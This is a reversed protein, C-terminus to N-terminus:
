NIESHQHLSPLFIIEAADSSNNILKMRNFEKTRVITDLQSKLIYSLVKWIQYSTMVSVMIPVLVNWITSPFFFIQVEEFNVVSINSTHPFFDSPRTFTRKTWLFIKRYNWSWWYHQATSLSDKPYWTIWASQKWLQVIASCLAETSLNHKKMSKRKEPFPIDFRGQM